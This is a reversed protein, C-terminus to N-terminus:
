PVTVMVPEPEPAMLVPAPSRGIVARSVPGLHSGLPLLHHRRGIVLLDSRQAADLVAEVPPAHRVDVTADVTPYRPSLRDLVPGLERRARADWDGLAAQDVVLEDYGNALWWAHLVVLDADRERAAEFAAKLLDEAEDAQQVAATVVQKGGKPRWKAPVTVVTSRARAAVGNSRSGTFFRRLRGLDRHEVVVMRATESRDVLEGVISGSDTLESTVSVDGDALDAARRHAAELVLRAEKIAADYVGAYPEGAPIQLVHVVHVPSGTRRAEEIAFTLAADGNEAPVGVVIANAPQNMVNRDITPQDEEADGDRRALLV